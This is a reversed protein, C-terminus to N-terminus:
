SAVIYPDGRNIAVDVSKVSETNVLQRRIVRAPNGVVVSYSPISKTVVSGAGISVYDGIVVPGIICVNAGISVHDGIVPCDASKGNNGITTSQRITCDSGIVTKKHIVLAQGHYVRFGKGVRLTYPIEIGMIYEVGIKYLVLYPLLAYKAIQNVSAYNALRFLLALLKGKSNRSNAAQDQRIFTLLNM